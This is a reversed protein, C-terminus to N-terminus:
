MLSATMFRQVDRRGATKTIEQQRTPRINQEEWHRLDMRRTRGEREVAAGSMGELQHTLQPHASTTDMEQGYTHKLCVHETIVVHSYIIIAKLLM